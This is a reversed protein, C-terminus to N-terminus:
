PISATLTSACSLVIPKFQIVIKNYSFQRDLVGHASLIIISFIIEINSNNKYYIVFDIINSIFIMIVFNWLFIYGVNSCFLRSYCSDTFYVIGCSKLHLTAMGFFIDLYFVNNYLLNQCYIIKVYRCITEVVSKFFV